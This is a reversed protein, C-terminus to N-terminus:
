MLCWVEYAAVPSIMHEVASAASNCANCAGNDLRPMCFIPLHLARGCMWASLCAAKCTTLLHVTLSTRVVINICFMISGQHVHLLLGRTFLSGLASAVAAAEPVSVQRQM